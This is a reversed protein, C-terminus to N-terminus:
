HGGLAGGAVRACDQSKAMMQASQLQSHSIGAGTLDFRPHGDSDLTPDPWNPVGHAHMCQAFKRGTTMMQAVLAPPCNDQTYCQNEQQILSGGAAPLLHKCASRAAQLQTDSVGGLQQSGVKPIAGSSDPDPFNPVGHSRMCASYALASTSGSSSPTSAGSSTSSGANAVGPGSPGTSCAAALMALIIVAIAASGARRLRSHDRPQKTTRTPTHM